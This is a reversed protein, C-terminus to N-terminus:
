TNTKSAKWTDKSTTHQTTAQGDERERRHLHTGTQHQQGGGRQEAEHGVEEGVLLMAAGEQLGSLGQLHLHDDLLLGFFLYTPEKQQKKGRGGTSPIFLQVHRNIRGNM